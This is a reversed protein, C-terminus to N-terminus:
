MERRWNSMFDAPAAARLTFGVVPGITQILKPRRGLYELVDLKRNSQCPQHQVAVGTLGADHLAAEGPLSM